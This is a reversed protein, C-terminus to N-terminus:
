GPLQQEIAGVLEPADPVVTPNFRAVIEGSPSVLFKEFNWRVDGTYGDASDPTATLEEYLPHRDDGNV